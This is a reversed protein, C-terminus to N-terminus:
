LKTITVSGNAVSAYALGNVGATASVLTGTSFSGGGGPNGWYNGSWDNGAPGGTYGGGGGGAFGTGNAGGGGGFGGQLMTNTATSSTGGIFRTGGTSTSGTTRDTGNTLWGAGGSAGGLTGSNALGGGNGIGNTTGTGNGTYTLGDAAATVTANVAVRTSDTTNSGGLGVGGNSTTTGHGWGGGGGAVAILGAGGIAGTYIWTGGGGASGDVANGSNAPTQGVVINLVTSATLSVDCTITAGQGPWRPFFTSGSFTGGDAGRLVLRYTATSPVTWQQIGQTVVNFYATNNLWPYTTTNYTSLLQALTPGNQGRLNTSSTFSFSTFAYLATSATVTINFAKASTQLARDTATVTYSALASTSTASGSIFGTTTNFLIGAPLVPSVAYTYSPVGGSATVPQFATIQLGVEFSYSAQALTTSLAPAATISLTFAKNSTQATPTAQDTVTVTYSQNITTNYSGTIFGSATNLNLGSPLSPSISYTLTGFGGAASVPKVNQIVNPYTSVTATDLTTTLAVPTVAFSFTKSSVQGVADTATLTYSTTSLLATPIGSISGDGSYLALGTPLTPGVTWGVGNYGGSSTVPTFSPQAVNVVISKTAIALTTTLATFAVPEYVRNRFSLYNQYVQADSLAQTYIRVAQINGIFSTLAGNFKAIQFEHTTTTSSLAGTGSTTQVGNVWITSVGSIVRGVVHYWNNVPYTGADQLSGGPTEWRWTGSFCYSLNFQWSGSNTSQSLICKQGSTATPYVWAEVTIDSNTLVPLFNGYSVSTSGDFAMAGTSTSWTPTGSITGAINGGVATTWTKAGINFNAYKFSDINFVLGSTVLNPGTSTAM